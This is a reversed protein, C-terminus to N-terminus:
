KSFLAKRALLYDLVLCHNKLFTTILGSISRQFQCLIIKSFIFYTIKGNSMGIDAEYSAKSSCQVSVQDDIGSLTHTMIYQLYSITSARFNIDYEASDKKKHLGFLVGNLEHQEGIQYHILASTKDSIPREIWTRMQIINGTTDVSIM